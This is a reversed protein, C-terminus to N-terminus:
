VCTPHPMWTLPLRNVNMWCKRRYTEAHQVRVHARNAVAADGPHYSALVRYSNVSTRITSRRCTLPILVPMRTAPTTAPANSTRM